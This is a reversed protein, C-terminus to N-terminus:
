ENKGGEKKLDPDSDSSASEGDSQEGSGAEGSASGAEGSASGAEGSASEGNNQNDSGANQETSSESSDKTETDLVFRKDTAVPLKRTVTGDQEQRAEKGTLSLAGIQQLIGQMNALSGFQQIDMVWLLYNGDKVANRITDLHLFKAVKPNAKIYMEM